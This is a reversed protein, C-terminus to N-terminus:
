RRAASRRRQVERQVRRAAVDPREHEWVVILKWGAERFWQASLSDRRRNSEFKRRWWDSNAIPVCGHKPCAHWFCGRVEVAVRERPFAVDVRRRVGRLPRVHVRYRLGLQFLQRRIALEAATDSRAQRQMRRRVSPSSAFSVYTRRAM